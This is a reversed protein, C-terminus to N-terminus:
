HDWWAFGCPGGGGAAHQLQADTLESSAPLVIHATQADDEHVVVSFGDPIQVNFAEELAPGPNNLLRERFETSEEAMAILKQLVSDQSEM